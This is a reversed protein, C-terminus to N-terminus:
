EAALRYIKDNGGEFACIYLENQADVGFSSIRIDTEILETNEPNGMDSYDLAWIRGSAYDAYIYQGALGDLSPGRYVFGGTVSVGESRGYEWVPLELGSQDCGSGPSFCHKGEMINWGYNEGIKIIDIEEYSNQGVDGAWLRDTEPDFSFRWVNRLGYAYIEERYGEENGAFPNDEPIGYNMGNEQSDVDIRLITGLLTTPDQGNDHPDGGSGGDGVAIYLYGDPGFSVQGGNHNGYPQEFSLLVQETSKVAQDPDDSSVEFRSVRTKSDHTTYNVYFYGNDEYDPHFALGLLGEENGANDVQEAIDLFTTASEVGPDNPFVSIIGRQEVVFLRDSGDGPHQLDVPRTFELAPFAEVIGYSGNGPSVEDNPENDVCGISIMLFAILITYMPSPSKM